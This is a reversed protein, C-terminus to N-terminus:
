KKIPRNYQKLLSEHLRKNEISIKSNRQHTKLTHSTVWNKRFSNIMDIQTNHTRKLQQVINQNKVKNIRERHKM